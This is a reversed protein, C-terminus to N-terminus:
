VKSGFRTKEGVPVDGIPVELTPLRQPSVLSEYYARLEHLSM